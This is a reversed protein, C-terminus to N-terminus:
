NLLGYFLIMKLFMGMVYLCFSIWLHYHFFQQYVEQPIWHTLYLFKVTPKAYFYFLTIVLFFWNLTRFLTLNKEKVAHYRVAIIEKYVLVQLLVALVPLIVIVWETSLIAAFFAIMTVGVISRTIMKQMLTQKVEQKKENKSINYM